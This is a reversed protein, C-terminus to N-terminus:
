FPIAEEGLDRDLDSDPDRRHRRFKSVCRRGPAFRCLDDVFGSWRQGRGLARDLAAMTRSLGEDEDHVFTRLVGAFLLALGQARVLGRPGAADINAATLMWRQSRVALGNFAFALTPHRRASRMLSRIAARDPALAELRRMLVDFLRERPPEDAMEADGGALVKRDIAKIYAAVIPLKSGFEKRLTDLSVDARAALDAYGIDEFAREALLAFFARIIKDRDSLPADHSGNDPRPRQPSRQAPRRAM